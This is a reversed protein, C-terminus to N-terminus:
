MQISTIAKTHWMIDTLPTNKSVYRLDWVKFAGDDGGSSLLNSSYSNWHIVNVDSDHAKNITVAAKNRVNQRIDCVRITRDV